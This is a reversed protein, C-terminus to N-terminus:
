ETYFYPALDAEPIYRLGQRFIAHLTGKDIEKHLPITLTQRGSSTQRRLKGHRTGAVKAFGFQGFIWLLDHGSLTKLRPM